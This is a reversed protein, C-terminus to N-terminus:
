GQTSGRDRIPLRSPSDAHMVTIALPEYLLCTSPTILTRRRVDMMLFATKSFEKPSAFRNADPALFGGPVSIHEYLKRAVAFYQAPGLGSCTGHTRYEHIV